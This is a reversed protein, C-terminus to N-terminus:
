IEETCMYFALSKRDEFATLQIRSLLLSCGSAHVVLIYNCNRIKDNDRNIMQTKKINTKSDEASSKMKYTITPIWKAQIYLIQLPKITNLSVLSNPNNVQASGNETKTVHLEEVKWAPLYLLHMLRILYPFPAPPDTKQTM